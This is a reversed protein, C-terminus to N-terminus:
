SQFVALAGQQTSEALSSSSRHLSCPLPVQSTSNSLHVRGAQSSSEALRARVKLYNWGFKILEKRHPELHQAAHRVLVTGLHLAEIRLSEGQLAMM